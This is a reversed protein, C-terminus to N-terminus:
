TREAPARFLVFLLSKAAFLGIAFTIVIPSKFSPRIIFAHFNGKALAMLVSTSREPNIIGSSIALLPKPVIANRSEQSM